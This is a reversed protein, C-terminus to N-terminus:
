ATGTRNKESLHKLWEVTLLVIVAFIVLLTAVALITPSIEERIGSWMERPITRQQIGAMFLVIVVEDFSTIFAFLAGTIVGPSLLPLQVRRFATFPGAGSIKAAKLLTHDFGALSASVTIVVYPAGIMAHALIIGIYPGIQFSGLSLKAIGVETYFFYVGVAVVIIPTVMPSIIFAGLSRRFPLKPNNLALAALTGLITAVITAFMGIVFSNAIARRWDENEFIARYWRLSYADSDLRLMGETFTFYPEANFSLPVFVLLPLTLFLFGFIVVSVVVGRSVNWLIKEM